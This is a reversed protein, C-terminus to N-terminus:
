WTYGLGGRGGRGGQGPSGHEGPPGGRGGHIDWTVAMLLHTKDEDIYIHIVGGNGGDAGNTGSGASLITLM